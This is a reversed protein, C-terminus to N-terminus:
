GKGKRNGHGRPNDDKWDDWERQRYTEQDVAASDSDDVVKPEPRETQGGGSIINGRQMERDLYEDISMTPLRYGPGFVKKQLAQRDNVLTFTQLPGSAKGTSSLLPGSPDPQERPRERDQSPREQGNGMSTKAKERERLLKLEQEVMDLSELAVEVFMAVSTLALQREVEDDAEIGRAKRERLTAMDEELKQKRRHRSIVDERRKATGPLSATRELIRQLDTKRESDLIGYSDLRTLFSLWYSKSQELLPLRDAQLQKPVLDALYADVLLLPLDGTGLDEVSENSSFLSLSRVMQMCDTFLQVAEAVLEQYRADSSSLSTTEIRSYADVGDRFKDQLSM